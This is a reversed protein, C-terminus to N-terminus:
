NKGTFLKMKIAFNLTKSGEECNVDMTGEIDSTLSAASLDARYSSTAVFTHKFFEISSDSPNKM